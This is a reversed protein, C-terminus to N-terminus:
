YKLIFPFKGLIFHNFYALLVEKWMTLMQIIIGNSTVYSHFNPLKTLYDSVWHSLSPLLFFLFSLCIFSLSCLVAVPCLATSNLETLVFHHHGNIHQLDDTLVSERALNTNPEWYVLSANYLNSCLVHRARQLWYGIHKRLLHVKNQLM